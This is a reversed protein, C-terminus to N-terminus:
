AGLSLALDAMCATFSAHHLIDAIDGSAVAANFASQKNAALTRFAAADAIWHILTESVM